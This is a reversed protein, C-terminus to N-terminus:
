SPPAARCWVRPSSTKSAAPPYTSGTEWEVGSGQVSVRGDNVRVNFDVVASSTRRTANKLVNALHRFAILKKGVGEMLLLLGGEQEIEVLGDFLDMDISFFFRGSRPDSSAYKPWVTRVASGKRGEFMDSYGGARMFDWGQQEWYSQLRGIIQQFTPVDVGDEQRPRATPRVPRPGPGAM